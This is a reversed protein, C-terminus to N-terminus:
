KSGERRAHQENLTWDYHLYEIEYGGQLLFQADEKSVFKSTFHLVANETKSYKKLSDPRYFRNIFDKGYWDFIKSIYVINKERDIRFRLPSKMFRRAQDDLQEDLREGYYPENRLHPCTLAACVLAMHIGPEYYKKRLIEHEIENLTVQKGMVFFKLDDWVGKIQRISNEPYYLKAPFTSKIPYHDLIAKITLANYANIWFAIQAKEYWKDFESEPLTAIKYLFANLNDPQQKLGAYDVMGEDDVRESLITAWDGYFTTEEARLVAILVLHLVLISWIFLRNKLTM